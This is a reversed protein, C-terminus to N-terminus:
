RNLALGDPGGLVAASGRRRARDHDVNGGPVGHGTGNEAGTKRVIILDVPGM